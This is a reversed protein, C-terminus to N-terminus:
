LDHKVRPRGIKSDPISFGEQRYLRIRSRVTLNCVGMAKATRQRNWGHSELLAIFFARSVEYDDKDRLKPKM